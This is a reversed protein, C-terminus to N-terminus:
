FTQIAADYQEAWAWQTYATEMWAETWIDDQEHTAIIEKFHVIASQWDHLARYSLAIYYHVQADHSPQTILYRQFAEIAPEYQAAHYDILGRQFEDVTIQSKVLEVLSLYAYYAEPYNNVANQFYQHAQDTDALQLLTYGRLYDMRAHTTNYNTNNNVHDYLTLAGTLDGSLRLAQAKDLLLFNPNGSRDTSIALQYAEAAKSYEGYQTHAHAIREWVYSDIVGPNTELYKKYNQIASSWTAQATFAEGLFFHADPLSM